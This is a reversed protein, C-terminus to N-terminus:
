GFDFHLFKFNSAAPSVCFLAVKCLVKGVIGTGPVVTRWLQKCWCKPWRLQLKSRPDVVM